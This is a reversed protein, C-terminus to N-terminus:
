RPSGRARARRSVAAVILWTATSWPMSRRRSSPNSFTRRPSVVRASSARTVPAQRKAAAEHRTPSSPRRTGGPTPPPAPRERAHLASRSPRALDVTPPSGASAVDMECDSAHRTTARRSPRRRTPRDRMRVSRAAASAASCRPAPRGVSCSSAPPSPRRPPREGRPRPAQPPHLWAHIEEPRDGGGSAAPARRPVSTRRPRLARAVGRAGGEQRQERGSVAASSTVTGPPAAAAVAQADVGDGREVGALDGGVEADRRGRGSAREEIERGRPMGPEIAGPVLREHQAAHRGALDAGEELSVGASGAGGRQPGEPLM